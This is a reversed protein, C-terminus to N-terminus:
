KPADRIEFATCDPHQCQRYQTREKITSTHTMWRGWLHQDNAPYDHNALDQM